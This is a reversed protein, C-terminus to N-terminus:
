VLFGVIEAGLLSERPRSIFGYECPAARATAPGETSLVMGAELEVPLNEVGESVRHHVHITRTEVRADLRAERVRWAVLLAIGVLGLVIAGALLRQRQRDMAPHYYM